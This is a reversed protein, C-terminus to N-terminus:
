WRFDVAFEEFSKKPKPLAEAFRPPAAACKKEVPSASGPGAEDECGSRRLSRGHAPVMWAVAVHLTGARQRFAAEDATSELRALGRMIIVVALVGDFPDSNAFIQDRHHLRVASTTRKEVPAGVLLYKYEATATPLDDGELDRAAARPNAQVSM